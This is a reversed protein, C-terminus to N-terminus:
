TFFNGFHFIGINTNLIKLSFQGVQNLTKLPVKVHAGTITEGDLMAAGLIISDGKFTNGKTISETFAEIKSM